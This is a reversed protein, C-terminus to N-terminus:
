RAHLGHLRCACAVLGRSLSRSGIPIIDLRTNHPVAGALATETDESVFVMRCDAHGIIWAAEVGHLKANIPVAVLGAHWIAFMIIIYDPSNKAFLGIRDGRRMGRARFFGALQAAAHAAEGYRAFVHKGHALAPQTPAARGARELWLALNM